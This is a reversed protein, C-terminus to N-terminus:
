VFRMIHGAVAVTQDAQNHCRLDCVVRFREPQLEVVSIRTTIVDGVFVPAIFRVRDYGLSLNPRGVAEAITASLISSATSMFGVMLAGHAILRGYHSAAAYDADVHVPDFDGSVEAFQAILQATVHRKYEAMLTPDVHSVAVRIADDDAGADLARREVTNESDTTPV